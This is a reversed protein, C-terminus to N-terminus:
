FYCNGTTLTARALSGNGGVEGYGNGSCAPVNSIKITIDLFWVAMYEQLRFDFFFNINGDRYGPDIKILASKTTFTGGGTLVM